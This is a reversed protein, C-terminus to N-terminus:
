KYVFDAYSLLFKVESLSRFGESNGSSTTSSISIIVKFFRDKKEKWQRLLFFIPMRGHFMVQGKDCIGLCFM